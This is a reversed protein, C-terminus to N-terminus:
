KYVNERLRAQLDIFTRSMEITIVMMLFMEFVDYFFKSEWAIKVLILFFM